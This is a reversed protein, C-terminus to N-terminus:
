SQEEFNLRMSEAAVSIKNITVMDGSNGIQLRRGPRFGPVYPCGAGSASLDTFFQAAIALPKSYVEMEARSGIFISGDPQCQWTFDDIALEHGILDLAEYGTGINIFHPISRIALLPNGLVFAVGTALSIQGLIVQLQTNRFSMTWRGALVAGSERILLRQQKADIQRCNDVYGTMVTEFANNIGAVLVAKGSLAQESRVVFIGRGPTGLELTINDSVIPIKSGGITLVKDIKM